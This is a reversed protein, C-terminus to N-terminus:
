QNFSRQLLRKRNKVAENVADRIDNDSRDNSTISKIKQDGSIVVIVGHNNITVEEQQLERQISMAQDRM